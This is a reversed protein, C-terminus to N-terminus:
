AKPVNNTDGTDLESMLEKWKLVLDHATNEKNDAENILADMQDASPLDASVGFMMRLNELLKDRLQVRSALDEYKGAAWNGVSRMTQRVAKLRALTAQEAEADGMGETEKVISAARTTGWNLMEEAADTELMELLAENGTIEEVARQVREEMDVM